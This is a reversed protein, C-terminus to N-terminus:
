RFEADAVSLVAEDLESIGRGTTIEFPKSGGPKVDEVTVRGFVTSKEKTVIDSAVVVASILHRNTGNSIEGYIKVLGQDNPYRDYFVTNLQKILKEKESKSLKSPTNEGTSSCGTLIAFLILLTIAIVSKRGLM